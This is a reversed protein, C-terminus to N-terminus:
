FIERPPIIAFNTSPPAWQPAGGGGPINPNFTGLVTVTFLCLEFNGAADQASITINYTGLNFQTGNEHSANMATINVNDVPQPDWTM